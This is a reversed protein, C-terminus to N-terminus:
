PITVNVLLSSSTIEFIPHNFGAYLIKPLFQFPTVIIGNLAVPFPFLHAQLVLFTFRRLSPSPRRFIRLLLPLSKTSQQEAPQM